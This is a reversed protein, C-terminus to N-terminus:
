IIDHLFTFLARYGMHMQTKGLINEVSVSKSKFSEVSSKRFVDYKDWVFLVQEM